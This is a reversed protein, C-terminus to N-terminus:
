CLSVCSLGHKTKTNSFVCLFCMAEHHFPIKLAVSAATNSFCSCVTRLSWTWENWINDAGDDSTNIVTNLSPCKVTSLSLSLSVSTWLILSFHHHLVFVRWNYSISMFTLASKKILKNKKTKMSNPQCKTIVCHHVTRVCAISKNLGISSGRVVM